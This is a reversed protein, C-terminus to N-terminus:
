NFNSVFAQMECILFKEHHFSGLKTTMGTSTLYAVGNQAIFAQTTFYMKISIGRFHLCSFKNNKNIEM